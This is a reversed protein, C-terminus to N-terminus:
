NTIGPTPCTYDGGAFWIRGTADVCIVPRIGNEEGFRHIYNSHGDTKKNGDYIVASAVGLPRVTVNAYWGKAQRGGTWKAIQGLPADAFPCAAYYTDAIYRKAKEPLITYLRQESDRRDFQLYCWNALGPPISLTTSAYGNGFQTPYRLRLEMLKGCQVLHKEGNADLDADVFSFARTQEGDGYITMQEGNLIQYMWIGLVNRYRDWINQNVGYFNHPRIVTYRLGHQIRAIELDM